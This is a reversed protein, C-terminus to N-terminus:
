APRRRSISAPPPPELDDLRRQLDGITSTLEVIRLEASALMSQCLDRQKIADRNREEVTRTQNRRAGRNAAPETEKHLEVYAKIERVLAPFRAKKLATTDCGAEKAVNNQSVLPTADPSVVKPQRAKLREFAQRFRQEATLVEANPPSSM